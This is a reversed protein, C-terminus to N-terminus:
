WWLIPTKKANSVNPTRKSMLLSLQQGEALELTDTFCIGEFPEYQGIKAYYEHEINLSAIYYPLLTIENCFLDSAYKKRLASPSQIRRIINVIFNGTGTAPDLIKVGPTEISKGFEQKLVEDVSAVMFDVIEQPTYVIGHTDAQKKAFGQFFHEYVINMFDQRESWDDIGKAAQEIAVYFRDLTKLFDSRNFSRSALADIVKEIESAIANRRVFDPNNFVTRFLRETLLHQVLMENITEDSMKPDLSSRCLTAFTLFAKRFKQNLQHEDTIIKLLGQAHESIREKFEDVAAEFNQIDPEVYTFVQNLLDQLDNANDLQFEVPVRRKNQYLIARRTDEFITNTLPYGSQIKKTIESDLNAGPGKAEWYGRRLKFEDLLVADPRIKGITMEPAVSWGVHKAVDDLMNQFAVRLGLEHEVVRQYRKLEEHYRKVAGKLVTSNINTPTRKLDNVM